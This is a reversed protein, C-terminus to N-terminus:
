RGYMEKVAQDLCNFLHVSSQAVGISMGTKYVGWSRLFLEWTEQDSGASLKPSELKVKQTSPSATAAQPAAVVPHAATTHIHLEQLLLPLWQLMTANDVDDPIQTPTVYDCGPSTCARGGAM